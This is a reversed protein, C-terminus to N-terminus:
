RRPRTRPTLEDSSVSKHNLSGSTSFGVAGADFAACVMQIM